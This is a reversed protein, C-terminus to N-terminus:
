EPPAHSYDGDFHGELCNSLNMGHLTKSFSCPSRVAVHPIAILIKNNEEKWSGKYSMNNPENIILDGNKQFYFISKKFSYKGDITKKLSNNKCFKDVASQFFENSIPISEIIAYSKNECKTPSSSKSDISCEIEKGFFNREDSDKNQDFYAYEIKSLHLTYRYVDSEDTKEKDVEIKGDKNKYFVERLTTEVACDDDKARVDIETQSYNKSKNVPSHVFQYYKKKSFTGEERMSASVAIDKEAGKIITEGVRVGTIAVGALEELSNARSPISFLIGCVSTFVIATRTVIATM